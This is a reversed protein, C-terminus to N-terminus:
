YPDRNKWAAVASRIRNKARMDLDTIEIDHGCCPCKVLWAPQGANGPWVSSEGAELVATCQECTLRGTWAAPFPDKIIKM